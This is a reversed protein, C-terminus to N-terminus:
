TAPALNNRQHNDNPEQRKFISYGKFENQVQGFRALQLAPSIEIM